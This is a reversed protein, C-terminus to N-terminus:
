LVEHVILTLQLSVDVGVALNVFYVLSVLRANRRLFVGDVLVQLLDAFAIYRRM